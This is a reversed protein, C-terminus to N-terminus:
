KGYEALLVKLRFFPRVFFPTLCGVWFGILRCALNDINVKFSGVEVVTVKGVLSDKGVPSDFALTTDGKTKLFSTQPRSVKKFVRHCIYEGRDTRFVVMDGPYVEEFSCFVAWVSSGHKFLPLM